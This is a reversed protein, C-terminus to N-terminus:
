TETHKEIAQWQAALETRSRVGLKAYVHGLHYVVTKVSLVLEDAVEQNRRGAIALRAVAFEQPTLKTHVAVSPDRHITKGCAALEAECRGLFPAAGLGTFLEQAIQLQEVAKRREGRRRLFRGYAAHTVATELADGPGALRLADLFALRAEPIRRRAAELEGRVRAVAARRSRHHRDRARQEMETVVIDAEDLRHLDVLATAYPPWWYLVGPEGSSGMRDDALYRTAWYVVAEPDGRNYALQVAATEAYARSATDGLAAAAGQAEGLHQEALDWQGRGAAPLAAVAHACASLWFQGTDDILSILQQAYAAASDWDGARYELEVLIGLVNLQHPRLGRATSPAQTLLDARAGGLDDLIVRLTGRTGLMSAQDAPVEAPDAPLGSLVALGARARGALGLGLAWTARTAVALDASLLGSAMAREAWEAAVAGENRWIAIQALMAALRDRDAPELGAAVDWAKRGITEADEFRGSLWALRARVQLRQPNSPLQDLAPAHLVAAAADGSLLLLDIADLLLRDRDPLAASLRSAALVATAAAGTRGSSRDLDAQALLGAVLEPDPGLAAAVRHRLAEAGSCVQASRAHLAARRVLGLDDYVAALILPHEFQLSTGVSGEVRRLIHVRSLEDAAARPDELGGVAGAAPLTSCGGLVATAEALARAQPSTGGITALVLMSLTRPAPLPTDIAEAQELTLESMLARLHLPSGRTHDHLRTAARSSLEGFALATGLQRVEDVSLGGLTIRLGRDSILRRLGPPLLASGEERTAFVLLVRDAQLRRAAFTLAAISPGDALHADDLVLVLPGSRAWSGLQQLFAAGVSVPDSGADRDAPPEVGLQRDIEDLIGFPLATETEDGAVMAVSATTLGDRFTRLLATKGCGGEGDVLLCRPQGATASDLLDMVAGLERDRGVFGVPM